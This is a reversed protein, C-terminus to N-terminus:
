ANDNDDDTIESYNLVQRSQEMLFGVGDEFNHYRWNTPELALGPSTQAARQPGEALEPSPEAIDAQQFVVDVDAETTTRAAQNMGISHQNQILLCGIPNTAIGCGPLRDQM